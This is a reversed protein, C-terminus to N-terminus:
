SSCHVKLNKELLCIIDTHVANKYAPCDLSKDKLPRSLGNLCRSVAFGYNEGAVRILEGLHKEATEYVWNDNITSHTDISGLGEIPTEFWLEMLVVGLSFLSKNCQVLSKTTTAQTTNLQQISPPAFVRRVFPKDVVTERVSILQGDITQCRISRQLFFIDQTGWSETLWESAHLQMVALALQFGLELRVKPELLQPVLLERLSIANSLYSPSIVIPPYIRHLFGNSEDVLIGIYTNSSKDSSQSTVKTTAQEIASCLDHIQKAAIEAKSTLTHQKANTEAPDKISVMKKPKIVPRGYILKYATCVYLRREFESQEGRHAALERSGVLSLTGPSGSGKQFGSPASKREVSSTRVM